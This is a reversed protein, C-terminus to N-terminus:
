TERRVYRVALPSLCGCHHALDRVPRPGEVMEVGERITTILVVTGRPDEAYLRQAEAPTM